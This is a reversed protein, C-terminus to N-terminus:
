RSDKVAMLLKEVQYDSEREADQFKWIMGHCAEIEEVVGASLREPGSGIEVIAALMLWFLLEEFSEKNFWLVEEHRNVHLFEQVEEDKFM